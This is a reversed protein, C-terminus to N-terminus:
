VLDTTELDNELYFDQLKEVCASMKQNFAKLENMVKKEQNPKNLALLEFFEQRNPMFQSMINYLQLGLGGQFRLLTDGFARTVFNFLNESNQKKDNDKIVLQFFRSVFDLDRRLWKLADVIALRGANKEELSLDELYEYKAPDKRYKVSIKKSTEKIDHSVPAFVRGKGIKELLIVVAGSAKLFEETNIKNESTTTFDPFQLPLTSFLTAGEEETASSTTASM